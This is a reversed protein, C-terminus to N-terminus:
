LIWDDDDEANEQPEQPPAEPEDNVEAKDDQPPLDEVPIPAKFKYIIRQLDPKLFQIIPSRQAQSVLTGDHNKVGRVLYDLLNFDDTRIFNEDQMADNFAIEAGVYDGAELMIAVKATICHAAQDRNELHDFAAKARDWAALCDEFRKENYLFLAYDIFLNNEWAYKGTEEILTLAEDYFEPCGFRVAMDKLNRIAPLVNDAEIYRIKSENLLRAVENQQGLQHALLGASTFMEATKLSLPVQDYALAAKEYCQKAQQNQNMQAYIKAAEFFSDGAELFDPKKFIGKKSASEGKKVFSEARKLAKPDNEPSIM